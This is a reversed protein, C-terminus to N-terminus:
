FKLLCSIHRERLYISHFWDSFQYALRVTIDARAEGSEHDYEICFELDMLKGVGDVWMVNGTSVDRHVIDMAQLVQLATDM